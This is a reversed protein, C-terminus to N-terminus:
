HDSSRIATIISDKKVLFRRYEQFPLAPPAPLHPFAAVFDDQFDRRWFRLCVHPGTSLGTSGVYGIVAGQRVSDGVQVSEEFRSMHLYATTYISDHKLKIYNGNGTKFAREVVVGDALAHIETGEPAAFDNGRHPKIIKLVPNLRTLNYRSSIQGYRVPSRLFQRKWPRGQEDFFSPPDQNPAFRVAYLATDLNGASLLIAVIEKEPNVPEGEYGLTEWVWYITDNQRLNRLGISWSLINEIQTIMSWPLQLKETDRVMMDMMDEELIWRDAHYTRILKKKELELIKKEKRLDIHLIARDGILCRIYFPDPEQESYYYAIIKSGKLLTDIELNGAERVATEALEKKRINELLFDEISQTAILRHELAPYNAWNFPKEPSKGQMAVLTLAIIGTLAAFSLILYKRRSSIWTRLTNDGIHMIEKRGSLAEKRTATEEIVIRDRTKETIAIRNKKRRFM